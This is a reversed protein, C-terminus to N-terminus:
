VTCNNCTSCLIFSERYWKTSKTNVQMIHETYYTWKTILIFLIPFHNTRKNTKKLQYTSSHTQTANSRQIFSSYDHIVRGSLTPIVKGNFWIPFNYWNKFPLVCTNEYFLLENGQSKDSNCPTLYLNLEKTRKHFFMPRNQSKM